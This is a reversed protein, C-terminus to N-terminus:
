SCYKKELIRDSNKRRLTTVLLCRGDVHILKINHCSELAAAYPNRAFLAANLCLPFVDMATFGDSM